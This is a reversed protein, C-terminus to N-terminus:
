VVGELDAVRGFSHGVGGDLDGYVSEKERFSTLPM